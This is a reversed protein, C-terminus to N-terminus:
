DPSTGFLYSLRLHVQYDDQNPVVDDLASAASFDFRLDGYRWRGGSGISTITQSDPSIGDVHGVDSFLFVDDIWDMQWHLEGSLAVGRAASQIGNEYGRVTGVGGIQFQSPSAFREDASYQWSGNIRATAGLPVARSWSGRGPWYLYDQKEDLVNESRARVLEQRLFWRGGLASGRGELGLAVSRISTDAIPRNLLDTRSDVGAVRALWDVSTTDSQWGPALYELSVQTSEGVIDLNAFGGDTIETDAVAVDTSLVGGSDNIPLSYGVSASRAGESGVIYGTLQDARRLPGNWATYVGGQGEGTSSAGNNDLFVQGTFRRPEEVGLFLKSAGFTDGALIRAGIRLPTLRNLTSIRDRLVPVDLTEGPDIGVADTLFDESTYQRGELEIAELTAEVLRIRLIGAEIRQAPVIARAAVQGRERYRANVAEVLDNIDAFTVTEGIYPEVLAELTEAPIFVSEDFRVGNLWFAEDGDEPLAQAPGEPISDLGPDEDEREDPSDYFRQERELQDLAQGPDPVEQAWGSQLLGAALLTMLGSIQKWNFCLSM